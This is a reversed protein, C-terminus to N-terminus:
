IISIFNSKEFNNKLEYEGSNCSFIRSFEKYQFYAIM